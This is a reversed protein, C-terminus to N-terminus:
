PRVTTVDEPQVVLREMMIGAKTADHKSLVYELVRCKHLKYIAIAGGEFSGDTMEIEYTKQRGELEANAVEEAEEAIAFLEMLISDKEKSRYIGSEITVPLWKGNKQIIESVACVGFMKKGSKMMFRFTRAFEIESTRAM